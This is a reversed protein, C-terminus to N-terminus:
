SKTYVSTLSLVIKLTELFLPFYMAANGRFVRNEKKRDPHNIAPSEYDM